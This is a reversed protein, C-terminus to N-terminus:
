LTKQSHSGSEKRRPRQFLNELLRLAMKMMSLIELRIQSNSGTLHLNGPGEKWVEMGRLKKLFTYVMGGGIIMEDVKDLLNNILKIKDHVKARFTVVVHKFVRM